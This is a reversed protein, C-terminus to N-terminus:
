AVRPLSAFEAYAEDARRAHARIRARERDLKVLQKDDVAESYWPERALQRLHTILGLRDQASPFKILM